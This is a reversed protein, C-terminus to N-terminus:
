ISIIKKNSKSIKEKLEDIKSKLKHYKDDLENLDKNNKVGKLYKNTDKNPEENNYQM